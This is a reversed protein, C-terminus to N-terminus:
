LGAAFSAAPAAAPLPQNPRPRVAVVDPNRLDIREFGLELLRSRADLRELQM